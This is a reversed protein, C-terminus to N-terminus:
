CREPTLRMVVEGAERDWRAEILKAPATRLVDVIAWLKGIRDAWACAAEVDKMLQDSDDAVFHGIFNATQGYTWGMAKAVDAVLENKETM